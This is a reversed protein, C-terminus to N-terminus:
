IELILKTTLLIYVLGKEKIQFNSGVRALTNKKIKKCFLRSIKFIMKTRRSLFKEKKDSFGHLILKLAPKRKTWIYLQCVKIKTYVSATLCVPM